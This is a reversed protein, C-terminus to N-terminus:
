RIFITEDRADPASVEAWGWPQVIWILKGEGQANLTIEYVLTIPELPDCNSVEILVTKGAMNRNTYQIVVSDGVRAVDSSVDIDQAHVTSACLAAALLSLALSRRLRM